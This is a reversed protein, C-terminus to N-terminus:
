AKLYKRMSILSGLIGVGIGLALFVIILLNFMEGFPKLAIGLMKFETLQTVFDQLLKYGVGTLLISLLGSIIGIIMGEVIFPWRIFNNTAGVYRMIFIEKKRAEVTLRITNSIIFIAIVICIILLVFSGIRIGRAINILAEFTNESSKIDEITDLEMLKSRLQDSLSLDTLTVSYAVPLNFTDVYELLDPQEKWQEKIKNKNEESSVYQVSKVEEMSHLVDSVNTIEDLTADSKLWIEMVQDDQIEDMIHSINEGLIFFIGFIIMACCMIILSSITSKKNKFVNKFGEGILYSIINFKMM